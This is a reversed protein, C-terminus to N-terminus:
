KDMNSLYEQIGESIEQFAQNNCWLGNREPLELWLSRFLIGSLNKSKEIFDQTGDYGKRVFFDDNEQTLLTNLSGTAKLLDRWEHTSSNTRIVLLNAMNPLMQQIKDCITDGFINLEKQTYFIPHGGCSYYVKHEDNHPPMSLVLIVGEDEFGPIPFDQTTNVPLKSGEAAITQKIFQIITAQSDELHKMLEPTNEANLMDFAFGVDGDIAEIETCITELWKAFRQGLDPERILKVEVNFGFSKEFTVFFDPSRRNEQKYKEYEVEFREDLLLLYSLELEFISAEINEISGTKRIKERIKAQNRQVFEMFRPSSTVWSQLITAAEDASNGVIDQIIEDVEM